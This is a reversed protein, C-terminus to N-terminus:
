LICFESLVVCISIIVALSIVMIRLKLKNRLKRGEVVRVPTDDSKNFKYSPYMKIDENQTKYKKVVRKHPQKHSKKRKYEPM